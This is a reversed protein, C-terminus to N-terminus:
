IEVDFARWNSYDHKTSTPAVQGPRPHPSVSIEKRYPKIVLYIGVKSNFQKNAKERIITNNDIDQIRDKYCLLRRSATLFSFVGNGLDRYMSHICLLNMEDSTENKLM